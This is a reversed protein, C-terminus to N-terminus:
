PQILLSKVLADLQALSPVFSDPNQAELQATANTLYTSYNNTFDEWSQGNPPNKADAMLDGSSIPLVVSIWYQGNATLGQFTYFMDQNNIPQPSQAYQTLYRLGQGGQFQIAEVKASFVQQQNLAPLFPLDKGSPAGGGIMAQLDALRAPVMDPLLESYREVPFADVHASFTTDGLPYNLITVETYAPNKGSAPVDSGSSEPITECGYGSGLAQDLTFDVGNCTVNAQPVPPIATGTVSLIPTSQVGSCGTVLLVAILISLFTPIPKMTMEQGSKVQLHGQRNDYAEPLM